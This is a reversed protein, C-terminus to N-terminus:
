YRFHFIREIYIRFLYSLLLFKGYMYLQHYVDYYQSQAWDHIVVFPEDIGIKQMLDIVDQVWKEVGPSLEYDLHYTGTDHTGPLVM